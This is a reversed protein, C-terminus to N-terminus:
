GNLLENIFVGVFSPDIDLYTEQVEGTKRNKIWIDFKGSFTIEVVTEMSKKIKMEEKTM